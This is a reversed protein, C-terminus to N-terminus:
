ERLCLFRRCDLALDSGKLRLSDTARSPECGVRLEEESQVPEVAATMQPEAWRLETPQVALALEVVALQAQESQAERGAFSQAASPVADRTDRASSAAVLFAASPLSRLAWRAADPVVSIGADAASATVARAFLQSWWRFRAAMAPVRCPKTLRGFRWVLM